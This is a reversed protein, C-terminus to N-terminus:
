LLCVICRVQEIESDDIDDTCLVGEDLESDPGLADFM